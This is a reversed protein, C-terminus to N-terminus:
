QVGPALGLVVANVVVVSYYSLNKYLLIKEFLMPKIM